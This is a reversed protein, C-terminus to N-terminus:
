AAVGFGDAVVAARYAGPSTGALERFDRSFHAQDHYGCEHAIMRSGDDLELLAAARRFRMVRAVTKPPPGVQERFRAILHRRSCGLEEALSGIRLRGGTESLRRWAWVVDPSPTRADETRALFFADLIAFRRAWGPAHFLREVLLSAERGLVAELDVVVESLGSMSVGLVMHAGLPTLDVQV